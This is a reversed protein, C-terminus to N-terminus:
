HRPTRRATATTPSSWPSRRVSMASAAGALPLQTRPARMGADPVFAPLPADLAGLDAGTLVLRVGPATMAAATDISRIRANAHLSRVFAVELQGPLDIDDVYRGLGRLLRDDERRPLAAGIYRHAAEPMQVNLELCPRCRRSPQTSSTATGPAGVCTAASASSCTMVPRLSPSTPSCQSRCSSARRASGCQLGHQERFADQLASLPGDPAALGEVTRVASGEAQVAFMLCSRVAVGDVVVTCAGCVGHECGVHTGTLGLHHRLYDSLLLRPEVTSEREEGNVRLRVVVDAQTM